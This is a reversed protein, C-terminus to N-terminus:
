VKDPANIALLDFCVKMVDVVADCMVLRSNMETPNDPQIVRCETVFSTACLSLSYLYDTIKNPTLSTLVDVLVDSFRLLEFALARECVHELIIDTKAERLQKVDAGSKNMISKLRAYAFMLYVGTNGRTDLM